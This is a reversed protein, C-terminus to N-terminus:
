LLSGRPSGACFQRSASSSPFRSPLPVLTWRSSASQGPWGSPGEGPLPHGDASPRLARQPQLVPTSTNAATRPCSCSAPPHLSSEPTHGAGEPRAPSGARGPGGLAAESAAMAERHLHLLGPVVQQQTLLQPGGLPGAGLRQGRGGTLVGLGDARGAGRGWERGLAPWRRQLSGALPLPLQGDLHAPAPPPLALVGAGTPEPAKAGAPAPLQPHPAWLAGKGAM